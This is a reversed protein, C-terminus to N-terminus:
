PCATEPFLVQSQQVEDLVEQVEAKHVSHAFGAANTLAEEANRLDGMKFLIKGKQFWGEWWRPNLQLADDADNLALDLKPPASLSYAMSRSLLLNRDYPANLLAADYM